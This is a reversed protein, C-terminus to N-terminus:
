NTEWIFSYILAALGGLTFLSRYVSLDYNPLILLDVVLLVNSVCLGVFCVASWFLLRFRTRAYSRALLVACALTTAACLIYVAAAIM